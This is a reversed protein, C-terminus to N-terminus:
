YNITNFAGYPFSALSTVFVYYHLIKLRNRFTNMEELMRRRFRRSQLVLELSYFSFIKLHYPYSNNLQDYFSLVLEKTYLFSNCSPILCNLSLKICHKLSTGANKVSLKKRGPIRPSFVAVVVLKRVVM